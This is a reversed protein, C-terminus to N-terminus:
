WVTLMEIPTLMETSVRSQGSGACPRVCTPKWAANPSHTPPFEPGFVMVKAGSGRVQPLIVTRDLYLCDTFNGSGCGGGRPDVGLGRTM